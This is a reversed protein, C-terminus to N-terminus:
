SLGNIGIHVSWQLQSFLRELEWKMELSSDGMNKFALPFHNSKFTMFSISSLSIEQNLKLKYNTTSSLNSLIIDVIKSKCSFLCKNRLWFSLNLFKTLKLMLQQSLTVGQTKNTKKKVLSNKFNFYVVKTSQFHFKGYNISM